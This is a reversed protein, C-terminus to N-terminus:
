HMSQNGRIWDSYHSALIYTVRFKSFLRQLIPESILYLRFLMDYFQGFYILTKPIIRLQPFQNSVCSVHSVHQLPYVVCANFFLCWVIIDCTSLDNSMWVSSDHSPSACEVTDNLEVPLCLWRFMICFKSVLHLKM